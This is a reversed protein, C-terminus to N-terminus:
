SVPSGALYRNAKLWKRFGPRAAWEPHEGMFDRFMARVEPTIAEVDERITNNGHIRYCSLFHPVYLPRGVAAARLAFAWDHAYRLAPFGGVKAHLSRTFVMNSTTAIFNQSALLDGLAEGSLASVPDATGPLPYEPELLARKTGIPTGLADIIILHGFVFDHGNKRLHCAITEFRGAVFVDDSNLVAVWENRAARVLQDLRAHAGRNTRGAGTLDKIRSPSATALQRLVARSGDQSGDDVLLVEDVLPSRLASVVAEAVFRDHNYVPILVSFM